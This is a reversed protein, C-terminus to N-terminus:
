SQIVQCPLPQNEVIVKPTSQVKTKFVSITGKVSMEKGKADLLAARETEPLSNVVQPAIVIEFAGCKLARSGKGLRLVINNKQILAATVTGRVIAFTKDLRILRTLESSEIQQVAGQGFQDYGIKKARDCWYCSNQHKSYFHPHSKGPVAEINKCPVLSDYAKEIAKKWEHATPRLEPERVDFCRKFCDQLKPHVIDLPIVRAGYDNNNPSGIWLRKLILEEIRLPEGSQPSKFPHEGFLLQFVIIGIRFRDQAETQIEDKIVKGILEPPTTERTGVPCTYVKGSYPNKVQISDIDVLSVRSTPAALVNQAKIDGIVYGASHLERVVTAFNLAIAHLLKWNVDIKEARRRQPSYVEVIQRGGKVASMLFGIKSKRHLIFSDPWAWPTHSKDENLNNPPNAMMITLKEIQEKNPSKHYIKAVFESDKVRWIEGEGSSAIKSELEIMEGKENRLKRDNM